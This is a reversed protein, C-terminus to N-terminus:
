RHSFRETAATWSLQPQDDCRSRCGTVGACGLRRGSPRPDADSASRQGPVHQRLLSSRSPAGRYCTVGSRIESLTRPHSHERVHTGDTRVRITRSSIDDNPLLQLRAVTTHGRGSRSPARVRRNSHTQRVSPGDDATSGIRGQLGHDRSEAAPPAQSSGPRVDARGAFAVNAEALTWRTDAM